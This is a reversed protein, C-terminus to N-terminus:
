LMEELMVQQALSLAGTNQLRQMARFLTEFLRNTAPSFNAHLSPKWPSYDRLIVDIQCEICKGRENCYNCKPTAM